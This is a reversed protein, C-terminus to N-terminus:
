RKLVKLFDEITLFRYQLSNTSDVNGTFLGSGDFEQKMTRIEEIMEEKNGAPWEFLFLYTLCEFLPMNIPRRKGTSDFRFANPGLLSFIREFAHLFLRTIQKQEQGDMQHNIYIMVKALFDDMDSKYEIPKGFDAQDLRHTFLYYFAIARLIVYRDRMRKPSISNDTALKFQESACINDILETATGQYLANRMEQNNLSTGGRNVRDFIDYKVREPTPPQIIYFFFQYDEFIGRLKPELDKFYCGNLNRLIKLDKLKFKNNLFDLVASIRQRGDVVQKKGDKAEFLYMIPIPIGMLISEVLEENQKGKWVKNRQFDPSIVLEGRDECLRKVHLISYQAKMVRVEANPYIASSENDQEINLGIEGELKEEKKEM